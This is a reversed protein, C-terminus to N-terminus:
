NSTFVLDLINQERTPKDIVELLCLDETFEWLVHAVRKEAGSRHAGIIIGTKWTIQPFNFDGMIIINSSPSARKYVYSKTAIIAATLEEKEDPRYLVCVVLRMKPSAMCLFETNNISAGQVDGFM